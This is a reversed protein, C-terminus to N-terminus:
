TEATSPPLRLTDSSLMSLIAAASLTEGAVSSVSNSQLAIELFSNAIKPPHWGAPTQKLSANGALSDGLLAKSEPAIYTLQEGIAAWCAGM